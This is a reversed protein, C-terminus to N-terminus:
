CRNSSGSRRWLSWTLLFCSNDLGQLFSPGLGWGSLAMPTVWSTSPAMARTTSVEVMFSTQPTTALASQTASPTTKTTPANLFMAPHTMTAASAGCATSAVSVKKQERWVKTELQVQGPLQDEQREGQHLGVHGVPGQHLLDPPVDLLVVEGAVRDDDADDDACDVEDHQTLVTLKDAIVHGVLTHYHVCIKGCFRYWVYYSTGVLIPVVLAM